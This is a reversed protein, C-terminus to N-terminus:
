TAIKWFNKRDLLLLIFSILLIFPFILLFFSGNWDSPPIAILVRLGVILDNLNLFLLISLSFISLWWAWKKRKLLFLGSIFCLAGLSILILAVFFVLAETKLGFTIIINNIVLYESYVGIIIMWWAAIKTKIPLSVKEM